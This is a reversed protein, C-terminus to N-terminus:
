GLWSAILTNRKELLDKCASVGSLIANEIKLLKITEYEELMVENTNRM